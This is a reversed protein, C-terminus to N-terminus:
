LLGTELAPASACRLTWCAVCRFVTCSMCKVVVMCPSASRMDMDSHHMAMCGGPSHWRVQHLSVSEANAVETSSVGGRGPTEALLAHRSEAERVVEEQMATCCASHPEQNGTGKSTEPKGSGESTHYQCHLRASRSLPPPPLSPAIDATCLLARAEVTHESIFRVIRVPRTQGFRHVRALAQQEVAVDVSPELLFVVSAAACCGTCMDSVALATDNVM